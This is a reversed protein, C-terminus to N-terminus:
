IHCDVVTLWKDAPLSNFLKEFEEEWQKGKDDNIHGWWGMEGREYWKGDMLVAHTTLPTVAAIKDDVTKGYTIGDWDDIETTRFFIADMDGAEKQDDIFKAFADPKGAAEYKARLAELSEGMRKVLSNYQEFSTDPNNKQYKAHANEYRQRIRNIAEDRMGKVDLDGVRCVDVGKESYQSGMLGKEGKSAEAGPKAKLLGSWRGGVVWWDWQANPNTRDFWKGDKLKYGHYEKIENDLDEGTMGIYERRKVLKYDALHEQASEERFHYDLKGDSKKNGVYIDEDLWENVEDTKDVDIVYEDDIGTCEYEHFPQLAAEVDNPNDTVVLVSFHSM